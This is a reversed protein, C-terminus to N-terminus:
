IRGECETRGTNGETEGKSFRIIRTYNRESIIHILGYKQGIEEYFIAM